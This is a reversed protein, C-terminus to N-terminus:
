IEYVRVNHYKGDHATFLSTKVKLDQTPIVGVDVLHELSVKPLILFPEKNPKNPLEFGMVVDNGREGMPRSNDATFYIYNM